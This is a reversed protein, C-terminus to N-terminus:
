RARCDSVKWQGGDNVLTMQMSHFPSWSGDVWKQKEIVYYCHVTNGDVRDVRQELRPSRITEGGRYWNPEAMVINNASVEGSAGYDGALRSTMYSMATVHRQEWWAGLCSSAVNLVDASKIFVYPKAPQPSQSASQMQAIATQSAQRSLTPTAVEGGENESLAPATPGQAKTVPLKRGTLRRAAEERNWQRVIDTDKLHLIARVQDDGPKDNQHARAVTDRHERWADYGRTGAFTTGIAAIVTIGVGIHFRRMRAEEKLVMSRM